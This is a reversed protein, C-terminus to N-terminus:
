EITRSEIMYKQIAVSTPEGIEASIVVAQIYPTEKGHEWVRVHGKEDVTVKLAESM